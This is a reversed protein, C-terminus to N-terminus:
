KDRCLFVGFPRATCCFGDYVALTIGIELNPLRCCAVYIHIAFPQKLKNELLLYKHTYLPYGQGKSPRTRNNAVYLRNKNIFNKCKM